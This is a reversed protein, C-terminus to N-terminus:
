SSTEIYETFKDRLPDPLLPFAAKLHIAMINKNIMIKNNTIKRRINKANTDTIIITRM